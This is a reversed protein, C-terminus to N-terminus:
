RLITLDMEQLAMGWQALKGSPQSTNQLSKLAQHDTYVVCLHGYLYPRFHKMTWVVGLGELEMIGYNHEHKLLSRSAYTIPRVTNDPQEQALVAGLGTGSADTELIFGKSFDPFALVPSCTLLQKLAEFATQCEPGWVPRASVRRGQCIIIRILRSGPIFLSKVDVPVPFSGVAELKELDTEVGKATM